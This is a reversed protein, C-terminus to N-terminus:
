RSRSCAFPRPSRRSHARALRPPSRRPECGVSGTAIFARRGTSITGGGARPPAQLDFCAHLELSQGVTPELRIRREDPLGFLPRRADLVPHGVPDRGKGPRHRQDVDVDGPEAAPDREADLAVWVPQQRHDDRELRDEERGEHHDALVPGLRLTLYDGVLLPLGDLLPCVSRPAARARADSGRGRSPSERRFAAVPPMASGDTTANGRTAPRVQCLRGGAVPPLLRAFGGASRWYSRGDVRELRPLGNARSADIRKVRSASWRGRPLLSRPAPLPRADTGRLSRRTGSM